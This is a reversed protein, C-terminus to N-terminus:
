AFVGVVRLPTRSTGPKPNNLHWQKWDIPDLDLQGGIKDHPWRELVRQTVGDAGVTAIEAFGGIGGVGEPMPMHRQMTMVKRMSWAVSEPDADVDIGEYGAAVAMEPPAVPTMVVDPLKVLAFPAAYQENAAAEEETVGPPLALSTQFTYSEPGRAQSYGALIVLAHSLGYDAVIAALVPVGAAYSAVMEDWTAFQKSLERAFLAGAAGCGANTIVGPWHGVTDVKKGFAVVGEGDRYIAADTAVHILNHRKQCAVIIATM